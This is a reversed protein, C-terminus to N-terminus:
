SIAPLFSNSMVALIFCVTVILFILKIVFGANFSGSLMITNKVDIMPGLILFAIVSGPTFMYTFTRAIFADTDSCISLLFATAMMVMISSLRGSGISFLVNRPIFIQMFSSLLAGLIFLKGIDYFEISTHHIIDKLTDMVSEKHHHHEGGHVCGEDGKYFKCVVKKKGQLVDILLGVIVAALAGLGIRAFIMYPRDSFAYYTSAIVVPNVIPTALMFTVAMSLPMGKSILRKTIPVIACECIPLVFGILVVSFMGLLQSRPILRAITKDSVFIEILASVFSGIIIFPFGELVISSFVTTFKHLENILTLNHVLFILDVVLLIAAIFALLKIIFWYVWSGERNYEM